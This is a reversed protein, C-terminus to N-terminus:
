NSLSVGQPTVVLGIVQEESTEVPVFYADEHTRHGAIEEAPNNSADCVIRYSSVARKGALKGLYADALNRLTRWLEPDNPEYRYPAAAVALKEGAEDVLLGVNLRSLASETKQLTNQGEIVYGFDPDRYACNVGAAKMAEVQAPTPEFRLRRVETSLKGRQPGAPAFWVGGAKVSRAHAALVEGDLPIWLPALTVPDIVEHWGAYLASYASDTATGSAYPATRRRWAIAGLSTTVSSPVSGIFRCDVRAACYADAGQQIGHASAHDAAEPIAVLRFGREGDFARLGVTAPGAADGLYDAQVIGATGDAGGAPTLTAAAPRNAPAATASALNEADFLNSEERLVNVVYRADTTTMSLRDHTELIEGTSAQTFRVRFRNTPDGPDDDIVVRLGHAWAGDSRAVFTLTTLAASASGAHVVNDFGCEDDATSAAIVQVSSAAGTTSSRLFPHGGSSGASCGAVAAEVIAEFEAASVSEIDAVNNPGPNAGAGVALGLSTLVDAHTDAHVALSAGSGKQDTRLELGPVAANIAVLGPVAANIADLFLAQSNETGAFTVVRRVGGVLLVLQHSATVAAYTAAAGTLRAYTAQFTATVAAAGDLAVDLTDGPALRLPFTATGTVSGATAASGRDSATVSAPASTKTALDTVDTLHVVRSILLHCGNDLARKVVHQGVRGALFGGYIRQFEPWSTVTRAEGIPGRETVLALAALAQRTLPIYATQDRVELKQGLPM